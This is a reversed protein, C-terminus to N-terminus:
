AEQEVLSVRRVGLAKTEQRVDALAEWGSFSIKEMAGCYRVGNFM